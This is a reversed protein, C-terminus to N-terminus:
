YPQNNNTRIFGTNLQWGRMIAQARLEAVKRKDVEPKEKEEHVEENIKMLDKVITNNFTNRYNNYM